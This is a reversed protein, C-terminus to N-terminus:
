AGRGRIVAPSGGASQTAAIGRPKAGQDRGYNSAGRKKGGKKKGKPFSLRSTSTATDTPKRLRQRASFSCVM